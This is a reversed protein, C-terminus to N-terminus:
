GSSKSGYTARGGDTLRIGDHENPFSGCRHRRRQGGRPALTLLMASGHNNSTLFEAGYRCPSGTIFCTKIRTIQISKDTPTRHAEVVGIGALGIAGDTMAASPAQDIVNTGPAPSWNRRCAAAVCAPLELPIAKQAWTPAKRAPM